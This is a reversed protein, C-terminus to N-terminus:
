RRMRRWRVAGACPQSRIPQGAGELYAQGKLEYFYPNNPQAQILADIQPM